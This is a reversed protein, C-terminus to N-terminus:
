GLMETACASLRAIVEDSEARTAARAFLYAKLKPETGSPRFLMKQGGELDFQIVNSSPLGNVGPLYDVSDTVPFGALEAPPDNRLGDMLSAMRAAGESGEFKFSLSGNTFYGFEEYLARMADVLSMGLERYYRAMECILMSAVIADKDRVHAGALYGYSEEYGFIFRDKEGEAELAGIISGIYKFGTLCRVVEVGYKAAVADVMDSSVITSITLPRDPMTGQATRVRCIYDLLLVGVENGNLLTYDDGDEVAIGVRDADPDTALLLDPHETRCLAIGCELAERIEPNPYPCTPFYGDPEAQEPVVVVDDVGIRDLIASVCELGTGNLPTYVVKLPANPDKAGEVREDYVADIFADLVAPPMEFILGAAVGEDYSMQKVGDFVDVSDIAAQIGAAYESTIQCGDPGYAKYGNYQSPNHSATVNIGADAHLYRTAFSLAPTPELRAYLHAEIGNAALVGAAVKTFLEGNLRSDRAIAVRRVGSADRAPITKLYDALGQTAQAITYINMRNTGAGLVGRLGATGFELTRYFADEIAADGEQELRALDEKLEPDEVRECWRDYSERYTM